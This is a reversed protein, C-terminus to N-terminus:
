IMLEAELTVTLFTIVAPFILPFFPLTVVAVMDSKAVVAFVAAKACVAAANM